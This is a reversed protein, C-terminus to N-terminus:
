WHTGLVATIQLYDADGGNGLDSWFVARGDIGIHFARAVDFLTGVHAYGALSSEHRSSVLYTNNSVEVFQDFNAFLASMGAGVYPHVTARAVDFTLRPGVYTEFLNSSISTERGNVTTTEGAISDSFGVEVGLPLDRPRFDSEIGILFQDDQEVAVQSSVRQRWSDEGLNRYGILGSLTIQWGPRRLADGVRAAPQRVESTPARPTERIRETGTTSCGVLAVFAASTVLRTGHDM